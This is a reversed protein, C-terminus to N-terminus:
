IASIKTNTPMEPKLNHRRIHYRHVINCTNISTQKSIAEIQKNQGNIHHQNNTKTSAEVFPKKFKVAQQRHILLSIEVLQAIGINMTLEIFKGTVIELMAM